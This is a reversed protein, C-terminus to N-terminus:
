VVVVLFWFDSVDKEFLILHELYVQLSYNYSTAPRYDVQMHVCGSIIRESVPQFLFFSFFFFFTGGALENFPLGLYWRMFAIISLGLIDMM